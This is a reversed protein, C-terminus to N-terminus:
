VTKRHPRIPVGHVRVNVQVPRWKFWNGADSWSRLMSGASYPEWLKEGAAEVEGDPETGSPEAQQGGNM